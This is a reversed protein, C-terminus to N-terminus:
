IENDKDGLNNNSLKKVIALLAMGSLAILLSMSLDPLQFSLGESSKIESYTQNIQAYTHAIESSIKATGQWSVGIGIGLKVIGM